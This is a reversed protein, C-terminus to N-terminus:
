SRKAAIYAKFDGMSAFKFAGQDTEAEISGDSFISYNAGGAGYRGVLTPPAPEAVPTDPTELSPLHGKRNENIPPAEDDGSDDLMASPEPATAPSLGSVDTDAAAVPEPVTVPEIGAVLPPVIPEAREVPKAESRDLFGYRLADVRRILLGIAIVIFGGSVGIAGCTAYLLGLETTLLDFSAALSAGGALTLILGLFFAIWSM